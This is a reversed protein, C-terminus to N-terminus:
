WGILLIPTTEPPTITVNFTNYATFVLKPLPYNPTAAKTRDLVATNYTDYTPVIDNLVWDSGVSHQEGFRVPEIYPVGTSVSGFATDSAAVASRIVASPGIGYTVEYTVVPVGNAGVSYAINQGATVSLAQVLSKGQSPPYWCSTQGTAPFAVTCGSQGGGVAVVYLKTVGAPVTFNGSGALQVLNLLTPLKAALAAVDAAVDAVSAPLTTTIAQEHSKLLTKIARLEEATYRAKSGAQTPQTDDLANPTYPM